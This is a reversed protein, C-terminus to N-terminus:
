QTNPLICNPTHAVLSAGVAVTVSPAMGMCPCPMHRSLTPGTPDADRSGLADGPGTPGKLKVAQAKHCSETYVTM